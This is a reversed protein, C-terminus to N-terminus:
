CHLNFAGHSLVPIGKKHESMPRTLNRHPIGSHTHTHPPPAAGPSVTDRRRGKDKHTEEFLVTRPKTHTRSAHRIKWKTKFTM